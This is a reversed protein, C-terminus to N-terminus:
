FGAYLMAINSYGVGYAGFFLIILVLGYYLAWRAYVPLAEYKQRMPYNKEKLVDRIIVIVFAIGVVIWYKYNMGLNLFNATVVSFDFNVFIQKVMSLSIEANTATFMMEGFIVIICLKLFRFTKVAKGQVPLHHRECWAEFPKELFMEILMLVFYYMGYLIYASHPGHWIGNTLWVLFLAIAPGTYRALLPHNHKKLHKTLHQIPKSLSVPYFIYDRLFMGLTIHWRRWFDSANKAFFPQRFNEKLTIGLIRASGIVVEITGAFDMYLQITCLIAALLCMAGDGRYTKFLKTVVPALHDAIVMKEFLGWTIRQVGYMFSEPTITHGAYLDNCVDSYRTIPGEVLTGFFSTFLALQFFNHNMEIKKNCLDVLYSINQLTYYSIGVPVAIVLATYSFHGAAAISTCIFNTYKLVVLFALNCLIGLVLVRHKKKRWAKKDAGAPAKAHGDLWRSFLYTILTGAVQYLLLIKSWSFFFVYDAALLTIWRYKKPTLQYVILTVPLFVAFYLYSNYAM